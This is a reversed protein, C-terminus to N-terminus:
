RMEAEASCGSTAHAQADGLSRSVALGGHSLDAEAAETPMDAFLAGSRGGRSGSYPVPRPWLRLPGVQEGWM